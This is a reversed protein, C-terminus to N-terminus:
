DDSRCNMPPVRAALENVFDVDAEDGLRLREVHSQM